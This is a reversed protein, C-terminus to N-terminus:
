DILENRSFLLRSFEPNYEAKDWNNAVRVQQTTLNQANVFNTSTIDTYTLKAHNLNANSLNANSLNAGHLNANSLNAHSLNAGSLDANSLDAGSLDAFRLKANSFDVASLNAHNLKVSSLNVSSLRAGSLQINSLFYGVTDLFTYLNINNSYSIICFLLDDEFNESDKDGCPYFVIENKLANHTQAYRSLELLLIM